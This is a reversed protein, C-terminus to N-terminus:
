TEGGNGGNGGDGGTVESTFLPTEDTNTVTVAGDIGVVTGSVLGVNGTIAVGSLTGGAVYIKKSYTPATFSTDLATIKGHYWEAGYDLGCQGYIQYKDAAGTKALSELFFNGKGPVPMFVPACVTPNYIIATAEAVRSNPQLAVSGFPTILVDLKIGNVERAAPVVTLGNASADANIQMIHVPRATLVLNDTPANADSIAQVLEAVLWFGLGADDANKTNTTIAATIGRTKYAVDDYNGDQYSGNLFTFEIDNAIEAMANAVQFDLENAPNAEQGAINLGSLQGMSSQKGYSIALAKQYIQCVNTAQTRTVFSPDPAVLSASETIAPQTAGGGTTYYLSVPFSWHNVTRFKGGITTSFPTRTNGKNFLMGSYNLLNHSTMVKTENEAM